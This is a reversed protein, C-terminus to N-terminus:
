SRGRNATSTTVCPPSAAPVEHAVAAAPERRGKAPPATGERTGLVVRNPNPTLCHAWTHVQPTRSYLTPTAATARAFECAPASGASRRFQALQRTEEDIRAAINRVAVRDADLGPIRCEAVEAEEAFLPHDDPNGIRHHDLNLAVTANFNAGKPPVRM